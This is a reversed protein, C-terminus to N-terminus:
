EYEMESQPFSKYEATSTLYNLLHEDLSKIGNITDDLPAAQFVDDTGSITYKKGNATITISFNTCPETEYFDYEGALKEMIKGAYGSDYKVSTDASLLENEAIISWMIQKDRDTFEHTSSAYNSPSILKSVTGNKTDLKNDAGMGQTFEIAFDAPRAGRKTRKGTYVGNKDFTYTCGGITKKGTDAIGNKNFHYYKGNILQWGTLRVGDKYYYRGKSTKAFGTYYGQFNGEKDFKYMRMEDYFDHRTKIGYYLGTANTGDDKMFHGVGEEDRYFYEASANASFATCMAMTLALAALKKIKM